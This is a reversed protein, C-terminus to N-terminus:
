PVSHGIIHQHATLFSYESVWESVWHMLHMQALKWNLFTYWKSKQNRFKYFLLKALFYGAMLFHHCSQFSCSCEQAVKPSFLVRNIHSSQQHRGFQAPLLEYSSYMLFTTCQCLRTTFVLPYTDIVRYLDIHFLLEVFQQGKFSEYYKIRFCNLLDM